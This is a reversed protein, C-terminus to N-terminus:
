ETVESSDGTSSSDGAAGGNIVASSAGDTGGDTVASSDADPINFSFDGNEDPTTALSMIQAFLFMM